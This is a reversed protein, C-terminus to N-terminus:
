DYYARARMDNKEPIFDRYQVKAKELYLESNDLNLGTTDTMGLIACMAGPRIGARCLIQMYFFEKSLAAELERRKDPQLGLGDLFKKTIM